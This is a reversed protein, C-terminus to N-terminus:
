GNAEKETMFKLKFTYIWDKYMGFHIANNGKECMDAVAEAITDPCFGYHKVGYTVVEKFSGFKIVDNINFAWYNPSVEYLDHGSSHYKDFM